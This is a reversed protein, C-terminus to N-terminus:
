WILAFDSQYNCTGLSRLASVVEVRHVYVACPLGLETLVDVDLGEFNDNFYGEAPLFLAIVKDEIHDDTIRLHHIAVKLGSFFRGYIRELALLDGFADVPDRSELGDFHEIADRLWFSTSVDRM